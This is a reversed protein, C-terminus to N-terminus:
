GNGQCILPFFVNDAESFKQKFGGVIFERVHEILLYKVERYCTALLCM